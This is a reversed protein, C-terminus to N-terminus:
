LPQQHYIAFNKSDCNHQHNTINKKSRPNLKKHKLM